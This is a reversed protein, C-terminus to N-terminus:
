YGSALDLCTFWQSGQFTELLDDIIPMPYVDKETVENLKRFDVCFRKKGNKKPVIVVPSSWPSTTPSIIGKQLMANIESKIFELQDPSTRYPRQKIPKASGTDISHTIATTRGLNSTQGEKSISEVFVDQNDELLQDVKSQQQPTLVGIESKIPTDIMHDSLYIAPNEQIESSEDQWDTSFEDGKVEDSYYTEEEDLSEDDYEIESVEDSDNEFDPLMQPPIDSLHTTGIKLIRGDHQIQLTRTDFDWKAKMKEFWDTGLLLTEERSEIIQLKIPIMLDRISIKLDTIQGIARERTGNATVVITKSPNDPELGLKDMLRRTMISVAAGSDLIAVVPNGKIRVYCKAATTRRKDEESHLYNTEVVKKPRKLIKVLNKRQNPYQLMQGLTASSQLYFIDNAIDYPKQCDIDSPQAKTRPKSKKPPAFPDQGENWDVIVEPEIEMPQTKVKRSRLNIEKASESKKAKEKAEKRNTSYSKGRQGIYVTEEEESSSSESEESTEITLYNVKKNKIYKQTPNQSLVKESMCNRALHGQEGCRYCARTDVQPTQTVQYRPTTYRPVTKKAEVQTSLREIREALNLQMKEFKKILSDVNDEETKRTRKSSGETARQTPERDHLLDQGLEYQQVIEVAAAVNNPAQMAILPAIESRLGKLFYRLKQRDTMVEDQDVRKLLRKFDLYYSDVTEHPGQRRGELDRLWKNKWRETCFRALFATKIDALRMADANAHNNTYYDNWWDEAEEQLHAALMLRAKPADWSNATVAKDFSTQWTYPDQTGDGFFTELKLISPTLNARLYDYVNDLTAM